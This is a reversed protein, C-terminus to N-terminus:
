FPFNMNPPLGLSSSIEKMGEAMKNDALDKANKFAAVILDELMEKESPDIVSPDLEIKQLEGKCSAHVKVLGGGAQGIVIEEGLKSQLETMKSQLAQAQKMMQQINM